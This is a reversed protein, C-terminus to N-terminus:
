NKIVKQFYLENGREICLFYVGNVFDKLDLHIDKRIAVSSYLLKGNANFLKLQDYPDMGEIYIIATTPNPFVSIDISNREPVLLLYPVNFSDSKVCGLSDTLELLYSGSVISNLDESTSGNSWLFSYPTVGGVVTLDIAGDNSSSSSAPTILTDIEILPPEDLTITLTDTCGLSDIAVFIYNGALLNTDSPYVYPPTGGTVNFSVNSEDGFCSISSHSQTFSLLAPDNIEILITDQEICGDQNIVEVWYTGPSQINISNNTEGNSWSYSNYGIPSSISFNSCLPIITDLSLNLTDTSYTVSITDSILCTHFEPLSSIELSYIGEQDVTLISSFSEATGGSTEYQWHFDPSTWYCTDYYSLDFYLSEGKCLTTDNGLDLDLQPLISVFIDGWDEFVNSNYRNEALVLYYGPEPYEFILTDGYTVRIFATDMNPYDLYWVISDALQDIPKELQFLGSQCPDLYEGHIDDASSFFNPGVIYPLGLQSTGANAINSGIIFTTDYGCSTGLTNPYEIVGLRNKLYRAQYIKGDACIELCGSVPQNAIPTVPPNVIVKSSVIQTDPLSINFQLVAGTYLDSTYVLDESPSFEVGYPAYLNSDNLIRPAHLLGTQKNFDFIEVSGSEIACAVQTGSFSFTMEGRADAVSSTDIVSGISTTQYSNVNLGNVDILYSRFVNNGTEHFLVWIGNIESHFTAAIKETGGEFLLVNKETLVVDGYGSNLSLDIKSYYTNGNMDAPTSFLYYINSNGPHPVFLTSQTSSEDIILSGGFSGALTNPTLGDVASVLHNDYTYLLLNGSYDYLFDYGEPYSVGSMDTWTNPWEWIKGGIFWPSYIQANLHTLQFFILVIFLFKKM